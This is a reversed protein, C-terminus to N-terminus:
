KFQLIKNLEKSKQYPQGERNLNDLYLLDPLIEFVKERYKDLKTIPCEELEL